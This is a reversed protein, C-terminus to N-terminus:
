LHLALGAPKLLKQLDHIYTENFFEKDPFDYRKTKKAICAKLACEIVYGALYYAGDFQKHRYLLQTDQLRTQAIARLGKM